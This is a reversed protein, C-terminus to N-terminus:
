VGSVIVGALLGAVGEPGFLLGMLLPSGIVLIGPAMMKKLSAKTSIAICSDYDPPIERNSIRPNLFQRRIEAIMENAALGVASMTLASFAYPLM